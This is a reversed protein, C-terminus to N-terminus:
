KIYEDSVLHNYEGYLAKLELARERVVNMDMSSFIDGLITGPQRHIPLSKRYMIVRLERHVDRYNEWAEQSANLAEQSQQNLESMLLDYYKNMEDTWMEEAISHCERIEVSASKHPDSLVQQCCDDLFIDIPHKDEASSVGEGYILILFLVVILIIKKNKPYM